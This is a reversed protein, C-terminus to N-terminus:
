GENIKARGSIPSFTVTMDKEKDKLHVEINEAAGLPGFFITAKGERLKGKSPLALSYLSKVDEHREGDPGKWAMSRDSLDFTLSYTEKTYIATDNLYRILSAIKGAEASIKKEGLGYFSPFVLAATLSIIFIVVILELLTFGSPQHDFASPQTEKSPHPIFSSPHFISFSSGPKM